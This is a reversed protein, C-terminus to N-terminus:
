TNMTVMKYPRVLEVLDADSLTEVTRQGAAWDRAVVREKSADDAGGIDVFKRLTNRKAQALNGWMGKGLKRCEMEIVASVVDASTFGYGAQMGPTPVLGLTGGLVDKPKKGGFVELFADALINLSETDPIKGDKVAIVLNAAARMQPTDVALGKVQRQSRTYRETM